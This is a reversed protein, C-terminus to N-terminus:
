RGLTVSIKRFRTISYTSVFHLRYITGISSSHYNIKGMEHGTKEFKPSKRQKKTLKNSLNFM